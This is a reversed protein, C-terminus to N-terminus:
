VLSDGEDEDHEEGFDADQSGEEGRCKGAKSILATDGLSGGGVAVLLIDLDLLTLNVIALPGPEVTARTSAATTLATLLEVRHLHLPASIDELGPM